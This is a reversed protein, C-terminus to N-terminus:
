RQRFHLENDLSAWAQCSIIKRRFESEMEIVRWCHTAREVLGAWGGWLLGGM